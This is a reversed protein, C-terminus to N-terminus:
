SGDSTWIDEMGLLDEYRERAAQEELLRDKIRKEAIFVAVLWDQDMSLFSTYTKWAFQKDNFLFWVAEKATVLDNNAENLRDQAFKAERIFRGSKRPLRFNTGTRKAILSEWYQLLEVNPSKEGICFWQGSRLQVPTKCGPCAGNKRTPFFM